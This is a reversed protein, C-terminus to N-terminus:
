EWSMVWSIESPPRAVEVWRRAIFVPFSREWGELGSKLGEELGRWRGVRSAKRERKGCEAPKVGQVSIRV